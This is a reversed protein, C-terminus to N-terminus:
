VLQRVLMRLESDGLMAHGLSISVLKFIVMPLNLQDGPPNAVRRVTGVVLRM